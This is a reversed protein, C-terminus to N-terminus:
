IRYVVANINMGAGVSAFLIVDGPHLSHDPQHGKRVMDFLTPVTAVSSNGLKDISMPMVHAPEEIGYLEFFRHIIAHDMKENAQHLFIKKIDGVKVGAKECCSKLAQPVKTLAYNYIKRGEMKIYRVSPDSDPNASHGMYLYYAEEMTDSRSSSALVGRLAPEEKGEVVSAGAGDSFIMSDRDFPDIVRSLTESGIVLVRQASGSKIFSDAMILGQVWGPCGFIVDYAICAPNEIQLLQKVRSAISPLFDSQVSDATVDGFNHAVIIQDLTEKDIGADQIAREAAITAIDSNNHSKDAYRREVIGTIAAFKGTITKGPLEIRTQDKNFFPQQEFQANFVVNDPIYSGTGTIITNKM